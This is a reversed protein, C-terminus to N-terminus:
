MVHGMHFTPWQISLHTDESATARLRVEQTWTTEVDFQLPTKTGLILIILNGKKQRKIEVRYFM